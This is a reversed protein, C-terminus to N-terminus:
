ASPAPSIPFAGSRDDGPRRLSDGGPPADLRAGSRRAIRRGEESEVRYFGFPMSFQTMADRLQAVRSDRAEAVIRFLEFNPEQERTWSSLYESMAGYMMEDDAWPRVIHHDVHGLTIAQVAPSTSTYDRDVLLVRKARPHLEHAQALFDRPPTTSSSCRSRSTQLRWRVCYRRAGSRVFNRRHRHLRQRVAPLPRVATRRAFDPRSRRRVAGPAGGVGGHDSGLPPASNAAELNLRVAPHRRARRAVARLLVRREGAHHLRHPPRPPRRRHARVHPAADQHLASPDASFALFYLGLEGVRGYPASRRYIELEEGDEEIVVRAIHATAPKDDLEVSDPKTRGITGEQETSPRPTSRTSTTCGSRRSCSRAARAPSATPCSRSTSRRRSRRTRPATSSAPSTAATTTCSARSSPRWRRGGARAGRRGGRAVDLEVDEGTGHTWVWLDHQTAPAADATARSRGRLRRLEAPADDPRLRRWLTPASAWSSTPGARPSRRSACVASRPARDGDDTAGPRLDFELHYHSRTGQAFIGPQPRAM